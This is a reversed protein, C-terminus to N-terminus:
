FAISFLKYGHLCFLIERPNVWGALQYQTWITSEEKAITVFLWLNLIKVYCM